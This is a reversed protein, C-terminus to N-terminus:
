GRQSTSSGVFRRFIEFLIPVASPPRPVVRCMSAPGEPSSCPIQVDVRFEAAPHGSATRIPFLPRVSPRRVAAGTQRGGRVLRPPRVPMRRRPPAARASPGGRRGSSGGRRVRRGPRRGPWRRRGRESPRRRAAVPTPRSSAGRRRGALTPGRERRYPGDGGDRAAGALQGDCRLPGAHFPDRGFDRRDKVLLQAPQRRPIVGWDHETVELALGALRGRM